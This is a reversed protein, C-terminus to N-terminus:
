EDARGAEGLELRGGPLLLRLRDACRTAALQTRFEVVAADLWPPPRRRADEPSLTGWHIPVVVDPDLLLTAEVARAPDLHGPGITPGWGWIPLLAVTVGRLEAMDPFLDTDGAFYVRRAGDSVVYGIPDADIRRHPGRGRKHMAPVARVVVDGLDVEDGVAVERVDDFGARSLMRGLGVPAVGIAGSAVSRLSRPHLHDMHAHSVVVADLPGPAALEAALPRRRRLHAVRDTLVPDTLVRVGALEILVTAHGLWTVAGGM